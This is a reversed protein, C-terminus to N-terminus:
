IRTMERRGPWGTAAVAAVAPLLALRAESARGGSGANTPNGGDAVSCHRSNGTECNARSSPRAQFDRRRPPPGRAPPANVARRAASIMGEFEMAPGARRFRSEGMDDRRRLFRSRAAPGSHRGGANRGGTEDGGQGRAPYTRNWRREDQELRRSLGGTELRREVDFGTPASLRRSPRVTQGPQGSGDTGIRSSSVPKQRGLDGRGPLQAPDSKGATGAAPGCYRPGRRTPRM